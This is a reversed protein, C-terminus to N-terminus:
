YEYLLSIAESAKARVEPTSDKLLMILASCIHEKSILTHNESPLNGLLFGIFLAANSKIESWSSRFFAVCGMAYFNVKDPFDQIIVKSLDNMFEGYHLNADELLHKQFKNNIDESEMLPGLQRLAGKCAKIVEKKPDNLHLLLSVLNSHIQELFPAKSPGDGFRSLNGFLIYSQARVGEKEKEFCPRIRLAVNILIARIHSEDIEPLIRSLGSMAQITIDDDPDEKDDMGAMMASLVTTSYRQVQDQGMSSVNGLGRICLMRVVHSSDVLRGLLSNMVLEVLTSDDACKQNILEAFFAATTVRQTEYLSSLSSTLCAVIQSTHPAAVTSTVILRTLITFAETYNDEEEFKTWCDEEELGELIDKTKSRELFSKFASVASQSCTPVKPTSAALAAAKKKDKIPKEERDSKQKLPKVGVSSGVRLMLAAFLRHYNKIVQEETEEADFIVKMACTVALPAVTANRVIRDGDNHEEYPLTRQLTELLYDIMSSTIQSDQALIQWIEVVNSDYPLPFNLLSQMVTSLHYSTLTRLTRLTGTKTQAFEIQGLKEHLSSVISGVQKLVEGGRAKMIGNLVVCAGSSSHSQPDLLGEQLVEIFTQLQEAPLKRAIVKALDNIVSFLITPDGKELREKLTSLADIMQDKADAPNGDIRSAMKLVVQICDVALQRVQTCPDTCRPVLRALITCESEFGKIEESTPDMNELIYEEAMLLTELARVRRHDELEDFWRKIHKFVSDLGNPTLDKSLIVCLLDHMAETTSQLLVEAELMQDYSDDKGKKPSMGEKPLVFICDTSTKILDFIEAESLKPDLKVLTACSKIALARTENTISTTSEAKMYSQLHNLFEGRNSFNYQSNLHDPHLAKGILDVTRILNQKVGMDKVNAFYPQIGRLITAEMRSVILTPPSFLAVFGYCLMLTAKTREIDAESRDKIFSFLGGSKQSMETKAVSELKTLVADLHSAACFGMAIACGERETQDSHKITSFILDLHKNVFDKKNSKRMVVGLCKYLFNKEEPYNNYMNVHSGFTEGLEATWDENEMVDLTKSLLKLFLDEWNQQSFTDERTADELFQILKPIVTDWLDVLSEDLNPVLGKMTMLVHVGRDRGNTPRGALVMLRAILVPTKPVNAQTEYDIEYDDANEERKKNSLHALCKCLVGAAETYQEPVILELLYPWLVQEMDDVTTTLLQLVNDCMMKLQKNTVHEPDPSRKGPPDNPLSCQKVIFEMMQQGGELELYNHHAMAIVVQAFIKKIKNNQELVMSKLGSVVVEQKDAMSETAANILHKFITLVGIKTKENNNDLKALLIGTLKGSFSRALIAFCRLVENHNKVSNPNNYDPPNFIQPFLTALLQELHPELVTNGEVCVADLVSCLGTTIHLPEPHRRYLGLIGQLIKPLQEDLKEKSMLHTMHGLAEVIALRLKIEKSQLWSNFLVDFASAVEQSFRDKTVTPDPAKDINACYDIIAECFKSLAASFVWRMNDHKAMGLMPLMTGLVATLHPVMRYVNAQSLNGITQVVFFHPLTGPQFRQLMEDMVEDCYKTGIAVLVGSAATQWDPVVEKSLTLELAAQKVVDVALGTDIDDLKEKIIREMCQLLVVRHEKVLKSHKKLYAYCSSLVLAPKRRGLDFLSNCIQEQCEEDRDYAADILAMTLDDVQGGTSRVMDEDPGPMIM